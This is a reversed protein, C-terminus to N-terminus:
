IKQHLESLGTKLSSELDFGANKLAEDISAVYAPYVAGSGTGVAFLNYSANGFLAISEIDKSIPLTHDENKLLIIGETAAKRAIAASRILDPNGSPQYHDFLPAKLITKLYRTVNRDLTSKPLTGSRVAEPIVIQANPRGPTIKEDYTGPTLLDNGAIMQAVPDIGGFWDTMVFGDFGWEQRLITDLLQPDECTNTGNLYNLSTMISWPSSHKLAIEFSRLYIERLARVGVYTQMTNRQTEQENAVFHKLCTGVGQSQIGNVYAAATLGSILPDESYYEFTRGGLPHRHANLAPALLISVGYEKLEHGLSKGVEKVTEMDWTSALLTASPYATSPKEKVLSESFHIGAPGDSFIVTPIGLRPIAYTPHGLAMLQAAEKQTYGNSSLLMVKEELTMASVVDEVPDTGLRPLHTPDATLWNIIMFCSIFLLNKDRM